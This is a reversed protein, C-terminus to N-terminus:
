LEQLPALTMAPPRQLHLERIYSRNDKDHSRNFDAFQLRPFDNDRVASQPFGNDNDYDRVASQPFRRRREGPLTSVGSLYGRRSGVEKCFAGRLEDLHTPWITQTKPGTSALGALRTTNYWLMLVTPVSFRKKTSRSGTSHQTISSLGALM